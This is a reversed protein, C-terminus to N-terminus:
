TYQLSTMPGPRISSILLSSTGPLVTGNETTPTSCDQWSTALRSTRRLLAAKQLHISSSPSHLVYYELQGLLSYASGYTPCLLRAQNLDGVIDSVAARAAPDTALDDAASAQKVARWRYVELWYRHKIDDPDESVAKSANDILDAYGRASDGTQSNLEEALDQSYTVFPQALVASTSSCAAWVAFIAAAFISQVGANKWRGAHAPHAASNRSPLAIRRLNILLGCTVATLVAVAPIHQGFDTTSQIQVALFGFGLGAAALCIDPGRTFAAIKWERWIVLTFAIACGLGVLGTEEAAEAYDNEAHTSLGGMMTTDFRPYFTEHTGLGTGFIPFHKWVGFLDKNTTVRLFYENPQQLTALRSSIRDLGAFIPIGILLATVACAIIINRNFDGACFWCM